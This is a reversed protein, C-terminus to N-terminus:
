ETGGEWDTCVRCKKQYKRDCNPDDCTRMDGCVPCHHPHWTHPAPAPQPTTSM